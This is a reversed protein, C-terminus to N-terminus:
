ETGQYDSKVLTSAALSRSQLLLSLRRAEELAAVSLGAVLTASNVALIQDSQAAATYRLIPHTRLLTEVADRNNDGAVLIVQPQMDMLAEPSVQRYNEYDAVNNGGM